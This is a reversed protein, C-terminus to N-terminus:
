RIPMFARSLHTLNCILRWVAMSSFRHEPNRMIEVEKDASEFSQFSPLVHLLGGAFPTPQDQFLDNSSRRARLEASIARRSM